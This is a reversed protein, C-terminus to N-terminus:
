PQFIEQGHLKQEQGAVNTKFLFSQKSVWLYNTVRASTIMADNNSNLGSFVPDDIISSYRSM